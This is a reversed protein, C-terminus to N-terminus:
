REIMLVNAHLKYVSWMMPYMGHVGCAMLPHVDGEMSSVTLGEGFNAERQM